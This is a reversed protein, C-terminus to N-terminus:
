IFEEYLCVHRDRESFFSYENKREKTEEYLYIHIDIKEDM